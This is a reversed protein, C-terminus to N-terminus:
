VGEIEEGDPFAGQKAFELLFAFLSSTQSAFMEASGCVDGIGLFVLDFAKNELVVIFANELDALFGTHGSGGAVADFVGEFRLEFVFLVGREGALDFESGWFSKVNFTKKM